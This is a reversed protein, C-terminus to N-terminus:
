VEKTEMVRPVKAPPLLLHQQQQHHAHAHQQDHMHQHTDQMQHHQQHQHQHQHQHQLQHQQAHMQQQQDHMQQQQQDHMQQHNQHHHHQHIEVGVVPGLGDDDDRLRKKDHMNSHNMDIGVTAPLSVSVVNSDMDSNMDSMNKHSYADGRGAGEMHDNSSGEKTKEAEALLSAKSYVGDNWGPLNADLYEKLQPSCRYFRLGKLGQKWDYLKKADKYEQQREPDKRNSSFHRPLVKGRLNYRDVIERATIM